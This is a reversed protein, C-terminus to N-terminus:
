SLRQTEPLKDQELTNDEKVYLWGCIVATLPTVVILGLFGVFTHLIEAAIAKSNLVNLLPTGQAMYVMLVTIYSGMYAFLLATIQSGVISKGITFGSQILGTRSIAPNNIYVEDLAASMDISLDILAGMCGLYVAAIFVRTLDLDYMGSYIISESWQMVAGEIKFLNTFVLALVCTIISSSVAGIIAAYAKQTFGAILLLTITSVIIGFCLGVVIPDANKLMLPLMIKWISFLAICFSLITRLGTFRSFALLAGVFILVLILESKLRYHDLMNTNYIEGNEDYSILVYATDGVEFIKDTELRGNLLNTASTVQGKNKGNLIELQCYQVGQKIAGTTYIGDNKVELVRCSLNESNYFEQQPFSSPIFILVVLMVLLVAILVFEKRDITKIKDNMKSYLNNLTNEKVSLDSCKNCRGKKTRHVGRGTQM